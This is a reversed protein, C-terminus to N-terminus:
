PRSDSTSGAFNTAFRNAARSMRARQRVAANAHSPTSPCPDAIMPPAAHARRAPEARSRRPMNRLRTETAGFSRPREAGHPKPLGEDFRRRHGRSRSLPTNEKIRCRPLPETQNDANRNLGGDKLRIAEAGSTRM